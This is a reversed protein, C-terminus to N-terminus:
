IKREIILAVIITSKPNKTNLIGSSPLKSKNAKSLIKNIMEASENPINIEVTEFECCVAIIIESIPNISGTMMREPNIKGIDLMGNGICIILLIIGALHNIMMMLAMISLPADIATIQFSVKIKIPIVTNKM